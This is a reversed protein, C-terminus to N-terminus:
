LTSKWSSPCVSITKSTARCQNEIANIIEQASPEFLAEVEQRRVINLCFILRFSFNVSGPLKLQGSRIGFDLDKDRLTGFKIYCPGDSNRFRHKTTKDFCATMQAIEEPDGFKSGRLKVPFLNFFQSLASICWPYVQREFFRRSTSQRIRIRSSSRLLPQM